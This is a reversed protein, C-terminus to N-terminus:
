RLLGGPIPYQPLTGDENTVLQVGNNFVADVQATRLCDDCTVTLRLIPSGTHHNVVVVELGSMEVVRERVPLWQALVLHSTPHLAANYGGGGAGVDVWGGVFVMGPLKSGRSPPSLLAAAVCLGGGVRVQLVDPYGNPGNPGVDNPSAVATLIYEVRPGPPM